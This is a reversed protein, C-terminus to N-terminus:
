DKGLKTQLMIYCKRWNIYINLYGCTHMVNCENHFRVNRTLITIRTNSRFRHHQQDIHTPYTMNLVVVPDSVVM